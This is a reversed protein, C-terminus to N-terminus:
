MDIVECNPLKAILSNRLIGYCFSMINESLSLDIRNRKVRETGVQVLTNQKLIQTKEVEEGNEDFSVYTTEVEKVQNEHIPVEIEVERAIISSISHELNLETPTNSDSYLLVRTDVM